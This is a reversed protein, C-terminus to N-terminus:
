KGNKAREMLQKYRSEAFEDMKKSAKRTYKSASLPERTKFGHLKAEFTRETQIDKVITKLLIGAQRRTLKLVDEKSYSCYRGFL